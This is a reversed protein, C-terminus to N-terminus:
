ICLFVMENQNRIMEETLKVMIQPCHAVLQGFWLIQSRYKHYLVHLAAIRQLLGFEGDIPGFVEGVIM